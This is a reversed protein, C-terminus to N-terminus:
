IIIIISEKLLDAAILRDSFCSCLMCPLHKIEVAFVNASIAQKNINENEDNGYNAFHIPKLTIFSKINSDYTQSM